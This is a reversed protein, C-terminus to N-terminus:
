RVLLSWVVFAIGGVICLATVLVIGAQEPFM